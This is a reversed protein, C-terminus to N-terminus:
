IYCSTGDSLRTTSKFIDQVGENGMGVGNTGDRKTEFSLNVVLFLM